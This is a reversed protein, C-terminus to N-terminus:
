ECDDCHMGGYESPMHECVKNTNLQQHPAYLKSNRNSGVALNPGNLMTHSSSPGHIKTIEVGNPLKAAQQARLFKSENINHITVQFFYIHFITDPKTTEYNEQM